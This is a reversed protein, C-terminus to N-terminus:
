NTLSQARSPTTCKWSGLRTTHVARNPWILQALRRKCARAIRTAHQILADGLNWGHEGDEKSISLLSPALSWVRADQKQLFHKTTRFFSLSITSQSGAASASFLWFTVGSIQGHVDNACVVRKCVVIIPWFYLKSWFFRGCSFWFTLIVFYAQCFCRKNTCKIVLKQLVHDVSTTTRGRDTNARM